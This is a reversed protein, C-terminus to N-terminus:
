VSTLKVNINLLSVEVMYDDLVEISASHASTHQVEHMLKLIVNPKNKEEDIEMDSM